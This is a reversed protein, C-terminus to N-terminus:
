LRQVRQERQRSVRGESMGMAGKRKEKLKGSQGGLNIDWRGGM